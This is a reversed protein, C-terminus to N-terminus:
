TEKSLFPAQADHDSTLFLSFYLTHPLRELSLFTKPFGKTPNVTLKKWEM